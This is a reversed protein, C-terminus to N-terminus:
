SGHVLPLKFASAAAVGGHWVETEGLEGLVARMIKDNAHNLRAHLLKAVQGKAVGRGILRACVFKAEIDAPTMLQRHACNSMWMQHFVYYPIGGKIAVDTIVRQGPQM